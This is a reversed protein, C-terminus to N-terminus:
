ELGRSGPGLPPRPPPPQIFWGCFWGMLGLLQPEASSIRDEIDEKPPLTVQDPLYEQPLHIHYERLVKEPDREFEDRFDDDSALRRVFEVARRPTIDVQIRPGEHGESRQEEAM